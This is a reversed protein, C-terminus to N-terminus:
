ETIGTQHNRPCDIGTGGFIVLKGSFRREQRYIASEAM